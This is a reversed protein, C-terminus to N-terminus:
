RNSASSTSPNRVPAPTQQISIGINQSLHEGFDKWSQKWDEFENKLWSEEKTEPKIKIEEPKLQAKASQIQGSYGSEELRELSYESLTGQQLGKKVQKEVYENESDTRIKALRTKEDVVGQADVGMKEQWKTRAKDMEDDLQADVDAFDKKKQELEEIRKQINDIEETYDDTFAELFMEDIGYGSATEAAKRLAEDKTMGETPTFGYLDSLTQITNADSYFDSTYQKGLQEAAKSILDERMQERSAKDDLNYHSLFEETDYIGYENIFATDNESIYRQLREKNDGDKQVAELQHILMELEENEQDSLGGKGIGFRIFLKSFSNHIRTPLTEMWPLLHDAMLQKLGLLIEGPLSALWGHIKAGIKIKESPWDAKIKYIAAKILVALQSGVAVIALVGLAVNNFKKAMGTIGAVSFVGILVKGLNAPNMHKALTGFSKQTESHKKDSKTSERKTETNQKQLLGFLSSNKSSIDSSSDPRAKLLDSTASTQSANRNILLSAMTGSGTLAAKRGPQNDKDNKVLQSEDIGKTITDQIDKLYDDNKKYEDDEGQNENMLNELSKVVFSGLDQSAIQPQAQSTQTATTTRSYTAM